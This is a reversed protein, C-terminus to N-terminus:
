KLYRLCPVKYIYDLTVDLFNSRQLSDISTRGMVVYMPHLKVEIALETIEGYNKANDPTLDKHEVGNSDTFSSTFNTKIDESSGTNFQNSMLRNEGAVNNIYEQFANATATPLCNNRAIETQILGSISEIRSHISIVQTLIMVTDLLLMLLISLALIKFVTGVTRHM